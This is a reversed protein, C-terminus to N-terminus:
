LLDTAHLTFFARSAHETRLVCVKSAFYEQQHALGEALGLPQGARNLSVDHLVMSVLSYQYPNLASCSCASDSFMLLFCHLLLSAVVLLNRDLFLKEVAARDQAEVNGHHFGIGSRLAQALAKSAVSEAVVDLARRQRPDRVYGGARSGEKALHAATEETGKRSSCRAFVTRLGLVHLYRQSAPQAVCHEPKMGPKLAALSSCSTQSSAAPVHAVTCPRLLHLVAHQAHCARRCFVLTPKGKSHEAIVGALHDNLRREFLFDNKSQPYGRVITTLKVPRMEEGFAMLGAPPVGLWEAVDRINEITASIAIIRVRAIPLQLACCNSQLLQKIASPSSLQLKAKGLM